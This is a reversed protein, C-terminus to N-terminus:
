RWRLTSPRTWTRVGCCTGARFGAAAGARERTRVRTRGTDGFWGGASIVAYENRTMAEGSAPPRSTPRTVAPWASALRRALGSVAQRGRGDDLTLLLIILGGTALGGLYGYREVLMVEAGNRAAAVAAAVGASGGGVVLVETEHKVPTTRAPEELFSM